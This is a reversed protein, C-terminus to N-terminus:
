CGRATCSVDPDNSGKVISQLLTQDYWGTKYDASLPVPSGQVTTVGPYDLTIDLESASSTYKSVSYSAGGAIGIDIFDFIPVTFGTSGSINLHTSTSSFNSAKISISVKSGKSQLGGLLQNNTPLGSYAVYFTGAATQLAGNAASPNQTNIQAATLEQTAQSQTNLIANLPALQNVANSIAQALSAYGANTMTKTANLINPTTIAKQGDAGFNNLVAQIVKAYTVPAAISYDAAFGGSTAEQAVAIQQSQINPDQVVKNDSRSYQYSAASLIKFYTTSFAADGLTLMGNGAVTITSDILGLTAPNYYVASGYQVAYNFGPPYSAM